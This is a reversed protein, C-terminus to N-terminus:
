PTPGVKGCWTSAAFPVYWATLHARTPATIVASFKTARNSLDLEAPATDRMLVGCLYLARGESELYRKTASKFLPSLATNRCRAHLWKLLTWHLERDGALGELQHIMGGRGTMVNPPTAKDSSTKVEGFVLETGEGLDAFGVLDAGPLSARPTRRDRNTNWSWQVGLEDELLCEAMSEGIEWPQRDSETAILQELTSVGMETTTLGQLDRVLEAVAPADRVRDAVRGALYAACGEADALEMGRWKVQSTTGGYRQLAQMTLSV